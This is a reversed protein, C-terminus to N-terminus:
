YIVFITANEAEILGFRWHVVKTTSIGDFIKM